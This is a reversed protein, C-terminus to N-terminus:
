ILQMLKTVLIGNYQQGSYILYKFVWKIGIVNIKNGNFILYKRMWDLDILDIKNNDCQHIVLYWM